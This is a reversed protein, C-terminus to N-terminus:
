LPKNEGIVYVIFGTQKGFQKAQDYSDMYLDIKNGKIASGIDEAKRFGYGEIYVWWGLPIVNPDVAITHGAQVTAGTYTIGYGADGESKGTSAAGADYATLTVNELVKKVGFKIGDKDIEMIDPSSASLLISPKLTGIVVIESVMPEIVDQKIEKEVVLEGDEYVKEVTVEMQGAKGAQEVRQQGELLTEDNKEVTEYPISVQTQEFERDVQTITIQDNEKVVNLRSPEVKDLPGLEIGQYLLMEEVTMTTTYRTETKGTVTISVPFPKNIVIIDGDQLWDNGEHSIRDHEDIVIQEDELLSSVKFKFTHATRMEDDIIITISKSLYTYTAVFLIALMLMSAAVWYMKKGMKTVDLINLNM